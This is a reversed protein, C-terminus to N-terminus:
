KDEGLESQQDYRTLQRLAGSREKIFKRALAMMEEHDLVMEMAMRVAEDESAVNLAKKAKSVKDRDLRYSKLVSHRKM